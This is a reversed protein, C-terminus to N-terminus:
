RILLNVPDSESLDRLLKTEIAKDSYGLARLVKREHEVNKIMKKFIESELYNFLSQAQKAM